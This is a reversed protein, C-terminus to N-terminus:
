SGTVCTHGTPVAPETNLVAETPSINGRKKIEAVTKLSPTPRRYSGSPIEKYEVHLHPFITGKKGTLGVVCGIQVKDGAKVFSKSMHLFMFYMPKEGKTKIMITGSRDKQPSYVKGGYEMKVVIGEVPSTVKTPTRARYDIGAHLLKYFRGCEVKSDCSDLFPNTVTIKGPLLLKGFEVEDMASVSSGLFSIVVASFLAFSKFM